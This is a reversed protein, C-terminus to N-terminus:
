SFSAVMEKAIADLWDTALRVAMAEERAVSPGLLGMWTQNVHCFQLVQWHCQYKRKRKKRRVNKKNEFFRMWMAFFSTKQPPFFIYPCFLFHFFVLTILPDPPKAMHILRSLTEEPGDTALSFAVATLNAVSQDSAMALSITALKEYGGGQFSQKLEEKTVRRGM